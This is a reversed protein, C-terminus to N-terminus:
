PAWITLSTMVLFHQSVSLMQKLMCSWCGLPFIIGLPFKQLAEVVGETMGKFDAKLHSDVGM